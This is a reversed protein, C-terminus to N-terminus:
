ASELNARVARGCDDLTPCHCRMVRRLVGKMREAEEIRQDLEVMKAKTLARWRESPPTRRVFGTMLQKIESMTFGASKAVDILALADLVSEDYVRRGGRRDAKRLLSQKEYFRIASAAIGCRAAVEGITLEAM